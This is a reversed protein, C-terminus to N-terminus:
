RGNNSMGGGIMRYHVNFQPAEMICLDARGAAIINNVQDSTMIDGTTLTPARAENRVQDSFGTLYYPGYVPQSELITQGALVEFLDCGHNKMLRAAVVADDPEFGGKAWDTASIAVCLPKIEPYVARVADIIELPYRLRNELSGGYSDKRRNTLPSIFSAILYGHAFYLELMDFGAEDAMKAARVHHERVQEMDARNMERPVPGDPLYPIASASLLPWGGQGLPIDLGRDRPRTSGRRGAHGLRAAIIAGNEHVIRTLRSWAALHEPGYLGACGPTIRAEPSIALPETLILAAGSRSLNKLDACYAEDPLGDRAAYNASCSVAVRNQFIASRLTFPALMPAPAVVRQNQTRSETTRAFFWREMADVFSSDRRRLEDYSIRGSRTLLYYVFQIPEFHEYRTTTEFYRNSEAAARQLGDVVPRRELEFDSIAADINTDYREFANALAIADEMAMKTGSGITFDATHAADGILVFNDYRWTKNSVTPFAIWDSKNPLLPQGDLDQAFVQQCYAVSEAETAHDLGASQWTEPDCQVLFTRAAGDTPYVHAQCLGHEN